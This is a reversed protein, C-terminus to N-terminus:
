SSSWSLRHHISNHQITVMLDHCCGIVQAEDDEDQCYQLVSWVRSRESQCIDVSQVPESWVRSRESQRGDAFQVLESWVRSRESQCGGASQILESSVRSRESHCDGASRFLGSSGRSRSEQCDGNLHCHPVLVEDVLVNVLANTVVFIVDSQSRSTNKTM